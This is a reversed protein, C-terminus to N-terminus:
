VVIDSPLSNNHKQWVGKEAGISSDFENGDQLQHGFSSYIDGEM